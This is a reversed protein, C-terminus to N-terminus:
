GRCCTSFSYGHVIDHTHSSPRPTKGELSEMVFFYHNREPLVGIMLYAVKSCYVTMHAAKGRRPILLKALIRHSIQIGSTALCVYSLGKGKPQLCNGEGTM